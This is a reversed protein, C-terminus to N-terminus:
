SFAEYESGLLKIAIKQELIQDTGEYIRCVRTDVLHRAPRNEFSYGNAGFVQLARDAVRFSANSACYKAQAILWDADSRLTVSSPNADYKSKALAAKYTLLRATELDISMKAIERQVLQHKGIKKNHQIREKAYRVAEDLCDKAVGVCGAAVSLRGSMLASYAIGMGKGRSGLM